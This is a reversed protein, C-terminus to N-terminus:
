LATERRGRKKRSDIKMTTMVRTGKMTRGSQGREGGVDFDHKDWLDANNYDNIENDKLFSGYIGGM